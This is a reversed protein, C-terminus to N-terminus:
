KMNTSNIGAGKAEYCNSHLHVMDLIVLMLNPNLIPEEGM